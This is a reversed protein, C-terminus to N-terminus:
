IFLPIVGLRTIGGGLSTLSPFAGESFHKDPNNETNQFSFNELWGGPSFNGPENEGKM